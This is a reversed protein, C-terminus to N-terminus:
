PLFDNDDYAYGTFQLDMEGVKDLVERKWYGCVFPSQGHLQITSVGVTPDSYAAKQLADIFPSDFRIDDGCLVVDSHGTVKM